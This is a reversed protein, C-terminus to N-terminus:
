AEEDHGACAQTESAAVVREPDAPPPGAEGAAAGTARAKKERRQVAVAFDPCHLECLLCHTCDGPRAIVPYGLRDRDFVHEPCLEICIGCAKCLELDVVVPGVPADGTQAEENDAADMIM